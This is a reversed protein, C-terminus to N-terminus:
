LRKIFELFLQLGKRKDATLNYNIRKTLYNFADKKSLSTSKFDDNVAQQINNVGYKLASNFENIFSVPLKEISVWAAFVFPLNTFKKWSASVLEGDKTWISSRFIKNNDNWKIDHKIPFVLKCETNAIVCDRVCFEEETPLNVKM